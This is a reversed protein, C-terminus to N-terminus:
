ALTTLLAAATAVIVTGFGVVMSASGNTGKLGPTSTTSSTTANNSTGTTTGGSTSGGTTSGSTSSGSTSGGTTTSTSSGSSSSSSSSSSGTITVPNVTIGAAACSDTVASMTQQAASVTLASGSVSVACDLCNGLTSLLSNNCICDLTTCAQVTTTVSNCENECQSPLSGSIGSLQRAALESTPQPSALATFFQVVSLDNIIHFNLTGHSALVIGVSIVSLLAVM